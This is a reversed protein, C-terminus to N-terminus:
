RQSKRTRTKWRLNWVGSNRVFGDIHEVIGYIPKNPLFHEAVMIDIYRHYTKTQGHIRIYKRGGVGVFGGLLKFGPDSMIKGFNSVWCLGECESVRKWVEVLETPPAPHQNRYVRPKWCLNWVSSDEQDGNAHKLDHEMPQPPLFADAVLVDVYRVTMGARGNLHVRFRNHRGKSWRIKTNRFMNSKVRGYNSVSFLFELSLIQIQKWIEPPRKVPPTNATTNM